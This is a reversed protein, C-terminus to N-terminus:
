YPNTRCLRTNWPTTRMYFDMGGGEALLQTQQRLQIESFVRTPNKYVGSLTVSQLTPIQQGHERGLRLFLDSVASSKPDQRFKLASLELRALKSDSPLM